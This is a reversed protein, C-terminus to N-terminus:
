TQNKTPDSNSHFENNQRIRDIYRQLESGELYLPKGAVQQPSSVGGKSYNSQYEPIESLVKHGEVRASELLSRANRLRELIEEHNMTPPPQIPTTFFTPQGHSDYRVNQPQSTQAMTPINMSQHTENVFNEEPKIKNENLNKKAAAGLWSLTNKATDPIKQIKSPYQSTVKSKDINGSFSNATPPQQQRVNPTKSTFSGFTTGRRLKNFTFFGIAALTSAAAGIWFERSFILQSFPSSMLISSHQSYIKTPTPPPIQHQLQLSDQVGVTLPGTESRLQNQINWFKNFASKTHYSGSLLINSLYFADYSNKCSASPPVKVVFKFDSNRQLESLYGRILPRFENSFKTEDASKLIDIHVPRLEGANVRARSLIDHFSENSSQVTEKDSKM